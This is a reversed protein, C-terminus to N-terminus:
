DEEREGRRREGGTLRGCTRGGIGWADRIEGKEESMTGGRDRLNGATQPPRRDTIGSCLATADARSWDAIAGSDWLQPM